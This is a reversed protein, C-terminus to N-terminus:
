RQVVLIPGPSEASNLGTDGAQYRLAGYLAVLSIVNDFSLTFPSSGDIPINGLRLCRQVFERASQLQEATLDTGRM